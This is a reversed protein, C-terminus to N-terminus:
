TITDLINVKASYLLVLQPVVYFIDCLMWLPGLLKNYMLKCTIYKAIVYIYTLYLM